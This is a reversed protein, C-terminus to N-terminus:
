PESCCMSLLIILITGGPGTSILLLVTLSAEELLFQSNSSELFAMCGDICALLIFYQSRVAQLLKSHSKRCFAMGISHLVMQLATSRIIFLLKFQTEGQFCDIISRLSMFLFFCVLKSWGSSSSITRQYDSRKQSIRRSSEDANQHHLWLNLDCEVVLVMLCSNAKPPIYGTNPPDSAVNTNCFWRAVLPLSGSVGQM